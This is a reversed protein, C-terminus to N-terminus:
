EEKKTIMLISTLLIWTILPFASAFAIGLGTESYFQNPNTGFFMSPVFAFNIIASILAIWGNWKPLAKTAFILYAATALLAGSLTIGVSGFMLLTEEILARIVTPNPVVGVTDLAAGGTISDSVLTLAIYILGIGFFLSAAWEYENNKQKILHRFGAIFVTLFLLIFLDMFTRAIFLTSNKAVYNSFNAEDSFLPVQGGIFWLPFEAIGIACAMIGAIGVWRYVKLNDIAM